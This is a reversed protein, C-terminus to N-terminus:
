HRIIWINAIRILINTLVLRKAVELIEDFYKIAPRFREQMDCLFFVTNNQKLDGLRKAKDIESEM